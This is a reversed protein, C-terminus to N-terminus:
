KESDFDGKLGNIDLLYFHKSKSVVAIDIFGDGDMDAGAAAGWVEHADHEGAGGREVCVDARPVDATDSVHAAHEVAGSREIPIQAAPTHRVDSARGTIKITQRARPNQSARYPPRTRLLLVSNM